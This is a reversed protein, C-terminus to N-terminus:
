AESPVPLTTVENWEDLLRAEQPRGHKALRLLLKRVQESGNLAAVVSKSTTYLTIEFGDVAARATAFLYGLAVQGPLSCEIDPHEQAFASLAADPPFRLTLALEEASVAIARLTDASCPTESELHAQLDTVFQPLHEVPLAISIALSDAM